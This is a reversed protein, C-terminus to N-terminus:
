LSRGTPEITASEGTNQLANKADLLEQIQAARAGDLGMKDPDLEEIVVDTIGDKDSEDEGGNSPKNPLVDDPKQEKDIKEESTSGDWIIPGNEVVEPNNVGGTDPAKNTADAFSGDTNYNGDSNQTLGPNTTMPANANEQAIQADIKAKDQPGGITEKIAIVNGNGDVSLTTDNVHSEYAAKPDLKEVLAYPDPNEAFVLNGKETKSKAEKNIKSVLTAYDDKEDEPLSYTGGTLSATLPVIADYNQTLGTLFSGRREDIVTNTLTLTPKEISCVTECCGGNQHGDAVIKFIEDNKVMRLEPKGLNMTYTHVRTDIEGIFIMGPSSTKTNANEADWTQNFLTNYQDAIKAAEDYNEQDMAENFSAILQLRENVMVLLKVETIIKSYDPITNKRVTVADIAFEDMMNQTQNKITDRSLDFGSIGALDRKDWNPNMAYVFGLLNQTDLKMGNPLSESIFSSVNDILLKNNNINYGYIGKDYDGYVDLENSNDNKDNNDAKAVAMNDVIAKTVGISAWALGAALIVKACRKAYWRTRGAPKKKMKSIRIKIESVLESKQIDNIFRSNTINSIFRKLEVIDKANYAENIHNMYGDYIMTM